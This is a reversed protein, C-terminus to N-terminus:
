GDTANRAEDLWDPTAITTEDFQEYAVGFRVAEREGDGTRDPLTYSVRLSSIVGDHTVVATARYSEADSLTDPAGTIVIRYAFCEGDEIRGACEVTSREGRLFLEYYSRVENAFASADGTTDTLYERYTTGTPEETRRYKTAGDAYVNVTVIDISSENAPPYRSPPFVFRADYRYQKPSEIRATYNWETKGDMLTATAPGSARVRLPRPTRRVAEVHGDLLTSLDSIGNEGLGAPRGQETEPTATAATPTSGGLAGAEGATFTASPVTTDARRSPSFAPGAVAVGVLLAVVLVAALQRSGHSPGSVAAWAMRGGELVREALPTGSTSPVTLPEGFTEEFLATAAEREIAYLLQERIEEPPLYTVGAATAADRVAARDRATVLVDTDDLSPTGFRGPDVVQIRNASGDCTAVILEGDRTTEWGRAAWLRSVFVARETSDLGRFLAAFREPSVPPM